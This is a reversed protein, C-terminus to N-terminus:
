SVIGWWWQGIYCDYLSSCYFCDFSIDYNTACSFFPPDGALPHLSFSWCNFIEHYWHSAEPQSQLQLHMFRLIRWRPTQTAPASLSSFLPLKKQNNSLILIQHYQNPTLCLTGVQRSPAIEKKSISTLWLFADIKM